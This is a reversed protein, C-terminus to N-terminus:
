QYVSLRPRHQLNGAQWPPQPGGSPGSYLFGLGPYQFLRWSLIKRSYWDMVAVLYMFGRAMPVYTINVAWVPNPRDITLNRILYPYVHHDPHPRSTRPRSYVAEIGMLRMLRQIRKRNVKRGQRRFHRAMARSGYFPTKLYQEDILRMMELDEPKMPKPTYYFSSSSIDLLHCQRSISLERHGSDIM